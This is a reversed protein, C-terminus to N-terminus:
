IKRSKIMYCNVSKIETSKDIASIHYEHDNNEIVKLIDSLKNESNDSQYHYEMIVNQVMNFKNGIEKLVKGESGEIDIKLLDVKQDIFTSAKECPVTTEILKDSPGFHTSVQELIASGRVDANLMESSRYFKLTGSNDSLAANFLEVGQINNSEINKKLFNFSEIDPEFAKIIAKPYKKKFYLIAMGINAGGDIIYPEDPLQCKYNEKIFIEKYLLKLYKINGYHITYGALIIKSKNSANFFKLLTLHLYDVFKSM